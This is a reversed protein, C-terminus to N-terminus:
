PSLTHSGHLAVYHREQTHPPTRVKVLVGDIDFAFAYDAANGQQRPAITSFSRTARTCLRNLSFM